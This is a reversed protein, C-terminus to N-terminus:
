LTFSQFTVTVVYCHRNMDYSYLVKYLFTYNLFLSCKFSEWFLIILFLFVYTFNDNYCNFIEESQPLCCMIHVNTWIKPPKKLNDLKRLSCSCWTVVTNICMENKTLNLSDAPEYSYTQKNKKQKKKIIENVINITWRYNSFFLYLYLGSKHPMRINGKEFNRQGTEASVQGAQTSITHSLEM